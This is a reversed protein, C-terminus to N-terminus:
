LVYADATARAYKQVVNKLNLVSFSYPLLSVSWALKFNRINIKLTCLKNSFFLVIFLWM